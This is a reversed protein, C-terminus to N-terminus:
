LLGFRQLIREVILDLPLYFIHVLALALILTAVAAVVAAAIAWHKRRREGFTVVYPVVGIPRLQLYRELDAVTRVSKNLFELLVVLGVGAALSGFSGAIVIRPRNPKVPADPVTAQEIVEFREAQRDEELREGTSADALKAQAQRYENQLNEYNRNLANLEVEAQPTKLIGDKLEALKSNLEDRQAKLQSVGQESVGVGGLSAIQAKTAEIDLEATALQRDLDKIRNKPVVGKEALPALSDRQDRLSDAQLQKAKLTFGLQQAKDGGLEASTEAPQSALNIRQDLDAIQSTLELMQTRRYPLSDPLFAENKRKFDAIRAELALLDKQTQALQDEFFKSTESARSLRSAINQSLISNVLENTVRSAITPNNYEFSVTFGIVGAARRDAAGVDIQEIAIAKRMRDVIDTPSLRQDDAYLDFKGAIQLLNDRAMLRQQIVQIREAANTTVTPSALDTPIQQSEVLITAKAQYVGPLKYALVCAAVFIVAAPVLLYWIRRRLVDVYRSLDFHQDM